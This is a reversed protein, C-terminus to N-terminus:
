IGERNKENEQSQTASMNNYILTFEFSWRLIRQPFLRQNGIENEMVEEWDIYITDDYSKGISKSVQFEM